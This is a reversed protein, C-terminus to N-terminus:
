KIRHAESFALPLTIYQEQSIKEGSVVAHSTEVAFKLNPKQRRNLKAILQSGILSCFRVGMLNKMHTENGLDDRVIFFQM